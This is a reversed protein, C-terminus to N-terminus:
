DMLFKIYKSTWLKFNKLKSGDFFIKFNKVAMRAALVGLEPELCNLAFGMFNDCIENYEEKPIKQDNIEKLKFCLSMVLSYRASMDVDKLTTVKGSLVDEPKPLNAGNKRHAMFSTTAGEGITALAQRRIHEESRDKSTLLRSLFAWSRPTPFAKDGSAPDFNFLYQESYSIHGLITPDIGNKAGWDIWSKADHKVNYHAFRNAVPTPLRFTVGRDTERNGAAVIWVNDPLIYKGVRRDLVLQYSAAQVLPPASNMEDLFLIVIPYKAAFEETPLDIPPAWDMLNLEKNFFPIGLIDSPQRIALRIDIVYGGLDRGIERIIDSKGIGPPGWLFAPVNGSICDLLLPKVESLKFVTDSIDSKAM